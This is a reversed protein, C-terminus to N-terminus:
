MKVYLSMNHSFNKPIQATEENFLHEYRIFFLNPFTKGLIYMDKTEDGYTLTLIGECTFLKIHRERKITLDINYQKLIRM